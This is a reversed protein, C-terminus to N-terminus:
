ARRSHRPQCSPQPAFVAPPTLGSIASDTTLPSVGDSRGLDLEFPTEAYLRRTRRMLMAAVASFVRWDRHENAYALNTRTVRRRIGMDTCPM